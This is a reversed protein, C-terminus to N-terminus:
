KEQNKYSSKLLDVIYQSRVHEINMNPLVLFATNFSLFCFHYLACYFPEIVALTKSKKLLLIAFIYEAVEGGDCTVSEFGQSFAIPHRKFYGFARFAELSCVDCLDLSRRRYDFLAGPVRPARKTGKGCDLILWFVSAM